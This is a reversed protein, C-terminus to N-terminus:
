AQCSRAAKRSDANSACIRFFTKEMGGPLNEVVLFVNIEDITYGAATIAAKGRPMGSRYERQRGQQGNELLIFPRIYKINKRSDRHPIRPDVQPLMEQRIYQHPREETHRRSNKYM